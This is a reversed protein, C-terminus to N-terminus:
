HKKDRSLDKGNIPTHKGERLSYRNLFIFTLHSVKMQPFTEWMTSHLM